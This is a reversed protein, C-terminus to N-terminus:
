SVDQVTSGELYSSGFEQGESITQHPLAKNNPIGLYPSPAHSHTIGSVAVMLPM